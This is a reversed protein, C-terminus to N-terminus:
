HEHVFWFIAGVIILVPLMSILISLIGTMVTIVLAMILILVVVGLVKWYWKNLNYVRIYPQDKQYEENRNEQSTAYSRFARYEEYGGELAEPTTDLITKAILRPDGLEDMVEMERRGKKIEDKIYGEYYRLNERVQEPPINSSLAGALGQLFEEKGM